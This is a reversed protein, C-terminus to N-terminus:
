LSTERKITIEVSSSSEKPEPSLDEKAVFFILESRSIKQFDQYTLPFSGKLTGTYNKVVRGIFRRAVEFGNQDQLSIQVTGPNLFMPHRIDVIYDVVIAQPGKEAHHILKKIKLTTKYLSNPGEFSLVQGNPHSLNTEIISNSAPTNRACGTFLFPM